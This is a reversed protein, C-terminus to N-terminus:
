YRLKLSPNIKWILQPHRHKNYLHNIINRRVYYDKDTAVYKKNARPGVFGIITSKRSDCLINTLQIGKEFSLYQIM